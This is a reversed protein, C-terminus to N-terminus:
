REVLLKLRGRQRQATRDTSQSVCGGERELVLERQRGGERVIVCVRVTGATCAVYSRERERSEARSQEAQTMRVSVTFCTSQRPHKGEARASVCVDICWM